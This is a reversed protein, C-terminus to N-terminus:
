ARLQFCGSGAALRDAAKSGRAAAAPTNRRPKIHAPVVGMAAWYQVTASPTAVTSFSACSSAHRASDGPVTRVAWM